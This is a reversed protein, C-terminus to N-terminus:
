KREKRNLLHFKFKELFIDEVGLTSRGRAPHEGVNIILDTTTWQENANTNAFIYFFDKRRM